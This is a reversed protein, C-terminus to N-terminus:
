EKRGNEMARDVAARIYVMCRMKNRIAAEEVQKMWEM